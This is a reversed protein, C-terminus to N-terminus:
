RLERVLDPEVDEPKDEPRDERLDEMFKVKCSPCMGHSAPGNDDDEHLVKPCWACVVKM